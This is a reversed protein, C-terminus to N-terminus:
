NRWPFSRPLVRGFWGWSNDLSLDTLDGLADAAITIVAQGTNIVIEQGAQVTQNAIDEFADALFFGPINENIHSYIDELQLDRGDTYSDFDYKETVYPIGKVFKGKSILTKNSKIIKCSSHIGGGVKILGVKLDFNGFPDTRQTYIEKSKEFTIELSNLANDAAYHIEGAKKFSPKLQKLYYYHISM